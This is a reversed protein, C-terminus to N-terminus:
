RGIEELNYLWTWGITGSSTLLKAEGGGVTLVLSVDDLRMKGLKEYIIRDDGAVRNKWLTPPTEATRLPEKLMVLDGPKMLGGRRVHVDVDM